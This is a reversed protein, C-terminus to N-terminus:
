LIHRLRYYLTLGHSLYLKFIVLTVGQDIGIRPLVFINEKKSIGKARVACAAEFGLTALSEQIQKTRRGYPYSFYRCINGTLKQIEYKSKEIDVMAEQYTMQDLHPHTHTHSGITIFPQQSLFAIDEVSARETGAFYETSFLDTTLFLTAPFSYKSLIPLANERTDRYIDDFTIAVTPHSFNKEGKSYSVIDALPVVSFHKALYAMQQEFSEKSIAHRWSPNGGVSHYMLIGVFPRHIFIRVLFSLASLIFIKSTNKM